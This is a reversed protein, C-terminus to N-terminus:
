EEMSEDGEESEDDDDDEELDFLELGAGSHSTFVGGIGRSGSLVLNSSHDVDSETEHGVRLQRGLYVILWSLRINCNHSRHFVDFSSYLCTQCQNL